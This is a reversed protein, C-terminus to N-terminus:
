RGFIAGTLAYASVSDCADLAAAEEADDYVWVTLVPGFFEEKMLRTSPSKSEVITPYVFFGTKDDAKGGTVVEYGADRKAEEIVSALRAFARGDIVAGM